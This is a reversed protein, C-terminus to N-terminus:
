PTTFSGDGEAYWDTGTTTLSQTRVRGAALHMLMSAGARKMLSQAGRRSSSQANRSQETSAYADFGISSLWYAGVYWEFTDGAASVMTPFGTLTINPATYSGSGSASLFGTSVYSYIYDGNGLSEGVEYIGIGGSTSSFGSYNLTFAPQTAPTPATVNFPNPLAVATPPTPNYTDAGVYDATGPGSVYAEAYADYTDNSDVDGSAVTPYNVTSGSASNLFLYGDFGVEGFEAGTYSSTLSGPENSATVTAPGGVADTSAFDAALGTVGASTVNEGQINKVGLVGSSDEAAFFLDQTGLVYVYDTYSGTTGSSTPGDAPYMGTAGSIATVDYTGTVTTNGCIVPVTSSESVTLEFVIVSDPDSPCIYALGYTGSTGAHFTTQGSGLLKWTGNVGSQYAIASPSVTTGAYNLTVTSGVPPNLLTGSSSCGAFLAVCAIAAARRLFRTLLM